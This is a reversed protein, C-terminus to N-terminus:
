GRGGKGGEGGRVRVKREEERAPVPQVQLRGPALQLHDRVRGDEGGGRVQGDERRWGYLRVQVADRHTLVYM